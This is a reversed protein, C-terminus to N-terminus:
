CHRVRSLAVYSTKNLIDFYGIPGAECDACALYKTNGVTNSFGINEFMLMDTVLWFLSLDETEPKQTGGMQKM